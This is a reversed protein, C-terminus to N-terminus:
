NPDRQKAVALTIIEFARFKVIASGDKDVELDAEHQDMLDVLRVSKVPFGFSIKATTQRNSEEVLRIIIEDEDENPKIAHIAVNKTDISLLGNQDDAEANGGNEVAIAMLPHSFAEARRSITAITNSGTAFTLGYRCHHQERDATEFPFIGSKILTMRIRQGRADYGYKSDNILAVTYDGESMAVWRHMSAEFRAMDWSTNAHTPRTVHGFQIESKVENSNLAFEFGAKLLTQSENWDVYTDFELVMSDQALSIIQVIKSGAYNREVKLAARHPGEEILEFNACTDVPWYKQDFYWDVDWADWQIPKDEFAQLQNAVSGPKLLERGAAKDFVSTIEGNEAFEVRLFSNELMHKSANLGSNAVGTRDPTVSLNLISTAPINAVPAVWETSGDARTIAQLPTSGSGSSLQTGTQALGFPLTVLEGSRDSGLANILAIDGSCHHGLASKLAAYSDAFFEAYERDSDEYVEAISTGPLIDHFQNLLIVRWFEALAESQLDSAASDIKNAALVFELDQLRDEALRNNRKNKAISTLTGRHYELYLEGVWKPFRDPEKGMKDGLRNIFPTVGEFKVSPCGPIGREMRRGVEIMEQTVGGGGDGHGYPILYNDNVNKPEYRNWAGMVYSVDLDPEYVTRITTADDRQTTILYTNVDTGDIGTWFFTDHPMRNTDSWSLKSTVLFEVGAKRMIQPMAASYGFTDPLWLIKPDVDFHKRHYRKGRQIQRVMSEGSIINVDPELWMAGEIEFRGSKVHQKVRELLEPADQELYDFMVCQNYMFVFDPNEDLLKLATAMSRLMKERTQSVPWLWAVDLHTHGICSAIPKEETDTLEYIKAAIEAAPKLSAIFHSRDRFDILRFADDILTLIKHKRLDTDPLRVAVEFPVHLDYYLDTAEQDRWFRELAYGCLRSADGTYHNIHLIGTDGPALVQTLDIEAHYGDVGQLYEGNLWVLGQGQTRGMLIENQAKIKFIPKAGEPQGTLAIEAAFWHHRKAGGWILDQPVVDWSRWDEALVSADDDETIRFHLKVHDEASWEAHQELEVLYRALKEQQKSLNM